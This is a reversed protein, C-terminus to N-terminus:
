FSKSDFHIDFACKIRPAHPAVCRNKFDVKLSRLFKFKTGRHRYRATVQIRDKKEIDTRKNTLTNNNM